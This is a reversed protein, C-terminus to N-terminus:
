AVTWQWERAAFDRRRESAGGVAVGYGFALAERATLVFERPVVKHPRDEWMGGLLPGDGGHARCVAPLTIKWCRGGPAIKEFSEIEGYNRAWVLYDRVMGDTVRNM